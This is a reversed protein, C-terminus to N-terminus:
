SEFGSGEQPRASLDRGIERALRRPQAQELAFLDYTM